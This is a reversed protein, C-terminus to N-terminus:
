RPPMLFISKEYRLEGSLLHILMEEVAAFSAALAIAYMLGEWHGFHLTVPYIFLLFGVLKNAYTHRMEFTRFKYLGVAVSLGKILVIVFIWTEIFPNLNLWPFLAVAVIILMFLDAASDLKDGFRSITGTKRAIFGDLIDTLGCTLYILLFLFTHPHFFLLLPSLFIRTMSLCNPLTLRTKM